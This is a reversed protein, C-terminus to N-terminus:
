GQQEDWDRLTEEEWDIEDLAGDIDGHITVSGKMCGLLNELGKAPRRPEAGQSPRSIEVFPAGNRTVLLPEGTEAVRDMLEQWHAALAAADVERTM